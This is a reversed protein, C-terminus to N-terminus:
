FLLFHRLALLTPPESLLLSLRERPPVSTLSPFYWALPVSYTPCEILVHSVSLRVQCRGCVSPGERAM